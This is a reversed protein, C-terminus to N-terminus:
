PVIGDTQFSSVVVAHEKTLGQFLVDSADERGRCWVKEVNDIELPRSVPGKAQLHQVATL